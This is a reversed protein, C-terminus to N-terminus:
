FLDEKIFLSGSPITADEEVFKEEFLSLVDLVVVVVYM